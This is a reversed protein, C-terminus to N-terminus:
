PCVPFTNYYRIITNPPVVTNQASLVIPITEWSPARTVSSILFTLFGAFSRESTSSSASPHDVILPSPPYLLSWRSAWLSLSRTIILWLHTTHITDPSPFFRSDTTVVPLLSALHPQGPCRVFVLFLFVTMIMPSHSRSCSSKTQFYKEIYVSHNGTSKPATGSALILFIYLFFFIRYYLSERSKWIGGIGM